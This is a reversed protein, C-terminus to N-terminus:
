SRTPMYQTLVQEKVRVYEDRLQAARESLVEHAMPFWENEEETVHHQVQAVLREYADQWRPSDVATSHVTEILSELMSAESDHTEAIHRTQAFQRLVPYLVTLEGKEHALLNARIEPFLRRRVEPDSSMKVRSMLASVEGHEEMLQAFIGTLGKLRAKTAKTAALTKSAMEEITNAM